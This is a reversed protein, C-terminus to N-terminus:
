KQKSYREQIQKAKAYERDIYDQAQKISIKYDNIIEVRRAIKKQREAVSLTKDTHLKEIQDELKAISLKYRQILEAKTQPNYPM